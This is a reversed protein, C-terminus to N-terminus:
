PYSCPKPLTIYALFRDTTLQSLLFDWGGFFEPGASTTHSSGNQGSKMELVMKRNWESVLADLPNRVLLIASKYM